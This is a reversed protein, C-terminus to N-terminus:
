EISIEKSQEIKDARKALSVKLVGNEYRANIKNPDVSDDLTFSRKFSQFQYERRIQKDGENVTEQKKEAAITLVNGELNVKFDGKEMGPAVVDLLYADKTEHINVPIQQSWGVDNKFFDDDFLKSLGATNFFEDMWNAWSRPMTAPRNQNNVKVLTM